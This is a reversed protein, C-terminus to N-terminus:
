GGLQVRARYLGDVIVNAHDITEELGTLDATNNLSRTLSSNIGPAQNGIKHALLLIPTVLAVVVLVVVIFVIFGVVYGTTDARAVGAAAPAAAGTAAGTTAAGAGAGPAPATGMMVDTIIPNAALAHLFSM